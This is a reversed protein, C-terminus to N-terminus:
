HPPPNRVTTQVHGDDTGLFSEPLSRGGDDSLAGSSTLCYYHRDQAFPTPFSTAKYSLSSNALVRHVLVKVTGPRCYRILIAGGDSFDEVQLRILQGVSQRCNRSLRAPTGRSWLDRLSGYLPSERHNRVM